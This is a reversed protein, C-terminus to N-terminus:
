GSKLRSDAGVHGIQDFYLGIRKMDHTPAVIIHRLPDFGDIVGSFIVEPGRGSVLIQVARDVIIIGGPIGSQGAAQASIGSPEDARKGHKQDQEPRRVAFLFAFRGRGAPRNRPQRRDDKPAYVRSPFLGYLARSRRGDLPPTVLVM